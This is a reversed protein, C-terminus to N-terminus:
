IFHPMVRQKNKFDLNNNEGREVIAIAM